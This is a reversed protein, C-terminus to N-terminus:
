ACTRRRRVAIGCNTECYIYKKRIWTFM